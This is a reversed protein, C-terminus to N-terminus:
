YGHRALVERVEGLGRVVYVEWGNMRMEEHCRWQEESVEGRGVKVELAV